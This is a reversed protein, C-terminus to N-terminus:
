VLLEGLGEFSAGDVVTRCHVHSVLSKVCTAGRAVLLCEHLAHIESHGGGAGVSRLKGLPGLALALLNGHAAM